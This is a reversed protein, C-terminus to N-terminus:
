YDFAPHITDVFIQYCPPDKHQSASPRQCHRCNRLPRRSIVNVRSGYSPPMRSEDYSPGEGDSGKGTHRLAHSPPPADAKLIATVVDPHIERESMAYRSLATSSESM